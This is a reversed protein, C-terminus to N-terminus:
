FKIIEIKGRHLKVKGENEWLKLQRSVVERASGLQNAIQEHTLYIWKHHENLLFEKLREDISKLVISEVKETIEILRTSILKFVYARISSEENFIRLFDNKPILVVNANTLTRAFASYNSNSLICSLNIVCSEGPYITYLRFIKGNESLKYVEIEGSILFLAHNCPDNENLIEFDPPLSQIQNFIEITNENLENMFSLKTM